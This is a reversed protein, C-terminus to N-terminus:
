ILKAGLLFLYGILIWGITNKWKKKVYFLSGFLIGAILIKILNSDIM